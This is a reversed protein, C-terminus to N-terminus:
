VSKVLIKETKNLPESLRKKYSMGMGVLPYHIAQISCDIELKEKLEELTLDPKELLLDKM